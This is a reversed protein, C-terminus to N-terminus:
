PDTTISLDPLLIPPVDRAVALACAASLRTIM